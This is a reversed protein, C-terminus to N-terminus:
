TMYELITASTGSQFKLDKWNITGSTRKGQLVIEVRLGTANGLNALGTILDLTEVLQYSTSTTSFSAIVDENVADRMLVRVEKTGSSGKYQFQSFLYDGCAPDVWISAMDQWTGDHGTSDFEFDQRSMGYVFAKPIDDVMANLASADADDAFTFTKLAM